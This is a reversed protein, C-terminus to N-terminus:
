VVSKRDGAYPALEAVNFIPTSGDNYFKIVGMDVLGTQAPKGGDGSSSM